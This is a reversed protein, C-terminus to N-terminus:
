KDAVTPLFRKSRSSHLPSVSVGVPGQKVRPDTIRFKWGEPFVRRRGHMVLRGWAGKVEPFPFITRTGTVAIVYPTDGM